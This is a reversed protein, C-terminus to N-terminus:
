PTKEGHLLFKTVANSGEKVQYICDLANPRGAVDQELTVTYIAGNKGMLDWLKKHDFTTRNERQGERFEYGSQTLTNGAKIKNLQISTLKNPCQAGMGSVPILIVLVSLFVKTLRRM